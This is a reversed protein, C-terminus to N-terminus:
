FIVLQMGCASMITELISQPRMFILDLLEDLDATSLQFAAAFAAADFNTSMTPSILKELDRPKDDLARPMNMRPFNAQTMDYIWDAPSYWDFIQERGDARAQWM